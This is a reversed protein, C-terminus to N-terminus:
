KVQTLDPGVPTHFIRTLPHWGVPIGTEELVAALDEPTVGYASFVNREALGEIEHLIALVAQNQESSNPSLNFTRETPDCAVMLCKLAICASELISFCENFEKPIPMRGVYSERLQIKPTIARILYSTIRTNLMVALGPVPLRPFVGASLDCTITGIPIRRLGLSGRAMYSYTLGEKLYFLENRLYAQQTLKIRQGANEWEVVWFHHGFWKGYGGGKEFAVWRRQHIQTNWVTQSIEWNYRVFRIDNTTSLGQCVDAVDSLKRGALLEFFRERLWYSLPAQPIALFRIQFPRTVIGNQTM